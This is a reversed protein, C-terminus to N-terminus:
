GAVQGNRVQHCTPCDCKIRAEDKERQIRRIKELERKEKETM